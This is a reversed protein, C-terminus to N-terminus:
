RTLIICCSGFSCVWPFVPSVTFYAPWYAAIPQQRINIFTSCPFFKGSQGRSQAVVHPHIGGPAAIPKVSAVYSLVTPM